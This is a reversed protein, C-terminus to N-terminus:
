FLGKQAYLKQALKRILEWFTFDREVIKEVIVEREVVKEVIQKFGHEVHFKFLEWNWSYDEFDPIFMRPCDKGTMDWHRYVQDLTLGHKKLLDRTLEVTREYVKPWDGNVCMEIGITWNNPNDKGCMAVKLPVPRKVSDGVHWAVEDDPVCQIVEKADVIYHCSASRDTSNFYNRNALATAGPATNATWHIVIGRIGKLKKFPRNKRLLHVNPM